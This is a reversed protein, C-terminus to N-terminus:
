FASMIGIWTLRAKEYVATYQDTVVFFSRRKCHGNVAIMQPTERHIVSM